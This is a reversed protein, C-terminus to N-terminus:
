LPPNLVAGSLLHVFRQQQRPLWGTPLRYIEGIVLEPPRQVQDFRIQEKPFFDLRIPQAQEFRFICGHPLLVEREFPWAHYLPDISLCRTGVPLVLRMLAWETDPALFLGYNFQPDYSTSNFPVQLVDVPQQLPDERPLTPYPNSAKFVVVERELPPAQLIIQQLANAYAQIVFKLQDDNWTDARFTDPSQCYADWQSFPLEIAALPYVRTNYFQFFQKVWYYRKEQDGLGLLGMNVQGSGVTYRWVLYQKWLSLNGLYRSHSRLMDSLGANLHLRLKGDPGLLDPVPQM